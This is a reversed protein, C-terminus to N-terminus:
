KPCRGNALLRLLHEKALKYQKASKEELEGDFYITYNDDTKKGPEWKSNMISVDCVHVHSAIRFEVFYDTENSVMWALKFLEKIEKEFM